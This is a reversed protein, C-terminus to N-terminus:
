RMRRKVSTFEAFIGRVSAKGNALSINKHMKFDKSIM